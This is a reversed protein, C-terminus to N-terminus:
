WAKDEHERGITRLSVSVNFNPKLSTTMEDLYLHPRDQLHALLVASMSPTIRRQPVARKSPAQVGSQTMTSHIHTVTRATCEAADALIEHLAGTATDWFRVTRDNSGSVLLRGDPSFAVSLVWDLHGELTQQLDGTAIDWLRVTKDWSGSALLRSNPSFAVSWIQDSHGKIIHRIDGTAIDWLRVTRDWSGSALLQSDPSFALLRVSDSHGELTRQLSGAAIDWLRVTKDNSGSALLQGDPSFAVLRVSDSHGELTRQLSGAAIDWLRVTKDDSGSALLRGSPSFAVSTVPGSHGEITQQLTGAAPDWLRVTKDDSGSALLRGNPSFAVSSVPGSHGEISQQLAGAAPDWLRVTQDRSGSALLRGDPSFTVSQVFHSHGELTQQLRGTVMDWLRVTRDDSGSVLLRGDPSCGVSRVSDSHGEITQQLSGTAIDWLRVTRDDSGSVLLQGDPSLSVSRISSSHGEITQQLSGTSTDWLRVTMDDSGSVLLRGNPTFAVSRVSKSHGKLTRQLSGTVTDWLRITNDDSGSALVRGNPSFAVSQVFHSHGELTQQLRGTVTDWLRVTSDYSGSVLLRGDPSFGVSQVFHSHGELTQQLRGTVTDWLRLTNDDSGSVLLRSDPAFAVSQVWNSHGELAQLEASWSENVRPSRNIWRPFESKFQTGIIAKQPAFVLAAFYIQLPAEDVIQRNKLVFRKADLLFDSMISNEDGSIVKHLLDLMVVIESMLGLLSMAEVWHLFHKQLFLLVDEFDFSTNQSQELHHTWYRCSYQLELPLYRLIYQPDIDAKYTGSSELNCINRQLRSRMAKLCMKAIDEHKRPMDVLFMTRSQVLFDRFSLHLIRVPQDRDSSISLVSRFSDLRNSIRDAGIGIFLSLANISLPVTLLVIVGVIDQFEQLLQQQESENCEQDDLLRMLIPLYTKDMRSVYKTQDKILEALRLKPEWKSTEIYRCVTAASIFLPVSMTVLEQIVNDSPWDGSINRDHKIKAFRDQLFLHIDHETVEEPIEHLALSRYEHDAIESFGLSILLESRSTLFIRLRVAKAKPPLPLLRIINRVDQDYECEDLADIVIVITQPPRGLTDLNLLPQLLLKDFQERLSKSAIDPDDQLAQYVGPRMEPIRFMLQRALTPFFKKANGRDGEGRKFFFSAGLHNTDKLTKAITRSITSKGTGAMGKLWFIDNQSLSMAWVIIQQLLETRTGQLCQAEDRDSFSDFGAEMAWELKGLNMTQSIRDTNQAVSVILSTQDVQLSLVFSSKYRELNQTVGEVEARKLPWKLARLGMKRMLKRGKGPDLRAKLSQLDSLCDAITSVLQSTTPLAKGDNTRLLRQLEQLTDQFSRIARQVIFIEDRADKVDQIYSACLKVLSGTVQVVAIVSAASSLGDM